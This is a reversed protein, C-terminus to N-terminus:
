NLMAPEMFINNLTLSSTTSPQMVFTRGKMKKKIYIYTKNIIEIAIRSVSISVGVLTGWSINKNTKVEAGLQVVTSNVNNVYTLQTKCLEQQTIYEIVVSAIYKLQETTLSSSIQCSDCKVEESIPNCTDCETLVSTAECTDCHTTNSIPNCIDCETLISTAECTDCQATDSTLNCTDCQATDSTLNCTDCETTNSAVQCTDCQATDSALNCSDCQATDSALNCSDCQATDSTLNCLDCETTNSAVQCTDCQATDSTLNCTDCETTNSAVQCIDCQTTNSAVQCIDCQTTNSAVQCIDCQTTNSAVQCTDCQTTNSAVQCTDCETTNSTLNCTECPPNIPNEPCIETIASYSVENFPCSSVTNSRTSMSTKCGNDCLKWHYNDDCDHIIHFVNYNRGYKFITPIQQIIKDDDHFLTNDDGVPIELNDIINNQYGFYSICNNKIESTASPTIPQYSSICELIPTIDSKVSTTDLFLKQDLITNSCNYYTSQQYTYIDYSDCINYLDCSPTSLCTNLIHTGYVDSNDCCTGAIAYGILSLIGFSILIIKKLIM